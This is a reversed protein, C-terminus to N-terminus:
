GLLLTGDFLNYSIYHAMRLKVTCTSISLCAHSLRQFLCVVVPLILWTATKISSTSSPRMGMVKIDGVGGVAEPQLVSERTVKRHGSVGWPGASGEVAVSSMEGTERRAAREAWRRAREPWMCFTCALPNAGVRCVGRLVRSVLGNTRLYQPRAQASGAGWARGNQHFSEHRHMRMAYNVCAVGLYLAGFCGQDDCGDLM